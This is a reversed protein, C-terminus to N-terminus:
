LLLTIDLSSTLRQMDMWLTHQMKAGWPFYLFSLSCYCPHLCSRVMINMVGVGVYSDDVDHVHRLLEEKVYVFLMIGVLQKTRVQTPAPLSRLM